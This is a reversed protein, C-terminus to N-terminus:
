PLARSSISSACFSLVCPPCPPCPPRRAFATSPLTVANAVPQGWTERDAATMGSLGLVQQEVWVTVDAANRNAAEMARKGERIERAKGWFAELGGPLRGNWFPEPDAAKPHAQRYPKAFDAKKWFGFHVEYAVRKDATPNLTPVRHVMNLLVYHTFHRRAAAPPAAWKKPRKRAEQAPARDEEQEEGERHRKAGKQAAEAANPSTTPGMPQCAGSYPTPMPMSLDEMIVGPGSGSPSVSPTGSLRDTKLDVLSRRIDDILDRMAELRGALSGDNDLDENSLFHASLFEFAKQIPVNLAGLDLSVQMARVQLQTLARLLRQGERQLGDASPEAANLLFREVPMGSNSNYSQLAM